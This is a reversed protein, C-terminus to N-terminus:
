PLTPTPRDHVVPAHWLDPRHHGVAAELQNAARSGTTLRYSFCGASLGDAPPQVPQWDRRLGPYSAPGDAAHLYIEFAPVSPRKIGYRSVLDSGVGVAAIAAWPILTSRRGDSPRVGQADVEIGMGTVMALARRVLFAFPVVVALALIGLVVQEKTGSAGVFAAWGAAVFGGCVVLLGVAM